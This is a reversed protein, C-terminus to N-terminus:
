VSSHTRTIPIIRKTFDWPVLQVTLIAFSLYLSSNEEKEGLRVTLIGYISWRAPRKWRSFFRHVDDIFM